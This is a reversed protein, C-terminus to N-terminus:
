VFNEFFAFKRKVFLARPHIIPAYECLLPSVTMNAVIIIHMHRMSIHQQLLFAPVEAM